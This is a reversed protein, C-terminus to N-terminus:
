KGAVLRYGLRQAGVTGLWLWGDRVLGGSVHSFAATTPESAITEVALTDPDVAEVVYAKYCPTGPQAADAAKPDDCKPDNTTMGAVILRGRDDRRVNDPWYHAGLKAVGHQKGARDFVHLAKGGFAVVYLRSGDASIELGNNGSLATGPLSESTAAGPRWFIVEGTNRGALVDDISKGPQIFVTAYVTGDPAVAVSNTNLPAQPMLCGVWTAQPKAGAFDVDFVEISEREAHNVAYLRMTGGPHRALAIGHAMFRTKDPPTPCAGFSAADHKVQWEETPLWHHWTRTEADILRLGARAEVGRRTGIGGAIIWKTGPVSVLDEANGLGCLFRLQGVPDCTAANGAEGGSMSAAPAAPLSAATALMAATAFLTFAKPM